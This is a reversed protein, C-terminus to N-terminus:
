LVCIAVGIDFQGCRRCSRAPATMFNVKESFLPCFGVEIVKKTSVGDTSAFSGPGADTSAISESPVGDTSAFSGPGAIEIGPIKNGPIPYATHNRPAYSPLRM